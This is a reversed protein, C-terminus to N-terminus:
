QGHADIRRLHIKQGGLLSQTDVGRPPATTLNQPPILYYDPLLTLHANVRNRRKAVFAVRHGALFVSREIAHEPPEVREVRDVKGVQDLPERPLPAEELLNEVRQLLADQDHPLVARDLIGIRRGM